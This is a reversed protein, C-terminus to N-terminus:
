FVSWTLYPGAVALKYQIPIINYSNQGSFQGHFHGHGKVFHGWFCYTNGMDSMNNMNWTQFPDFHIQKLTANSFPIYFFFVWLIYCWLFSHFYVGFFNCTVKVKSTIVGFVIPTGRIQYIVWICLKFTRQLSTNWNDCCLSLTALRIHAINSTSRSRTWLFM